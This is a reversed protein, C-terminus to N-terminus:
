FIKSKYIQKFFFNVQFYILEVQFKTDLAKSLDIM